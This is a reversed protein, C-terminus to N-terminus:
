TSQADAAPAPVQTSQADESTIKSEKPPQGSATADQANGAAVDESSPPQGQVAQEDCPADGCAMKSAPESDQKKIVADSHLATSANSDAAQFTSLADVVSESDMSDESQSQM